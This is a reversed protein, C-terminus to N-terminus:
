KINYQKLTQSNSLTSTGTVSTITARNLTATCMKKYSCGPQEPELGRNLYFFYAVEKGVTFSTESRASLRLIEFCLFRICHLVIYM